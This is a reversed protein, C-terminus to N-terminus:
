SPDDFIADFVPRVHKGAILCRTPRDADFLILVADDPFLGRGALPCGLVSTRVLGSGARFEVRVLHDKGDSGAPEIDLVRGSAEVGYRYVKERWGAERREFWRLAPLVVLGVSAALFCATWLSAIVLPVCATGVVLSAFAWPYPSATLAPMGLEARIAPTVSRSTGNM